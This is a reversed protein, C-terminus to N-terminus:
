FPYTGPLQEVGALEHAIRERFEANNEAAVVPSDDEYIVTVIPTMSPLYYASHLKKVRASLAGRMILWMIVEAGELGGREAYQAITLESLREPQRELLDLLEMDWPTKNFGAREGHVQHALGGTAVIAVKLDEPYSEIAR